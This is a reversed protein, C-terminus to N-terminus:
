SDGPIHTALATLLEQELYPKTLYDVAGLKMALRRHKDNGRSTLMLTPIQDFQPTERRKTLFEFGNMNPMEVDCIIAQITPNQQLQELAEQGDRAQLVRYGTRELSLSLARRLTVADDVVLITTAQLKQLTAGTPGHAGNQEALAALADQESAQPLLVLGRRIMDDLLVPGDIVPVLSGDGLVTCGYAFLPSQIATGFPKVVMEQETVLRDVELAFVQDGRSLVLMPAQWNTPTPVTALVRSPPVEPILGNYNLLASLKYAPIEQHQWTLFQRPGVQRLQDPAPVLIEQISDSRIALPTAGVFCILLNIISLTQPLTLTFVTGQGPTSTVTIAGNLTRIQDRVIDLGVGRGSLESVQQATSFGPEFILPSLQEPSATTAAAPSLWGLEVARDCIREFNLGRGDDRVELIVQRGQYRAQLTIHGAEPKHQQRREEASEIGHDFSNRLLQVLPDYLKSLVAKDVLIDTGSLALNVPKGYRNSLDRLVRPFRNLVQELPIMRAWMLEDQMQSLMKRHRGLMQESQYSFLSIDEVTEEVQLLEELLTQTQAYLQTYHDMELSDFEEQQSGRLGNSRGHSLLSHSQQRESSVLVQDSLRRLNEVLAQFRSFRGTLEKVARQLQSNQLEVGNRNITLEGMLNNMRTLRDAEVRVTLGTLVPETAGKASMPLFAATSESEPSSVVPAPGASSEEPGTESTAESVTVDPGRADPTMAEGTSASDPELDALAGLQEFAQSFLDEEPALDLQTLSMTDAEVRDRNARDDAQQDDITQDLLGLEALVQNPDGELELQSLLETAEDPSWDIEGNRGVDSENESVLALLAPSPSGGQSGPQNLVERQGAQFDALALQAIELAQEPHRELAQLTTKAIEGFGSLGLLEAFDGFTDAQARLEEAVDQGSPDALIAALRELGEAVDVAFISQTMDIGFDASSPLFNATAAIADSFQSELQDLIPAAAELAQDADFQGYQLQEMLPLRLCDYAQLLQTELGDDLSVTDSYFARFITELRHAITKIADLGVSASSGKLSHAARMMTHITHTDRTQRLALIGSEIDQLLEPAEEIFFQYAQDRIDSDITM